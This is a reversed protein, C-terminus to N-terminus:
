GYRIAASFLIAAEAASHIQLLLFPLGECRLRDLRRGDSCTIVSVSCAGHGVDFIGIKM